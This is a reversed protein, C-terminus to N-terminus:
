RISIYARGKLEEMWEKFRKQAEEKFLLSRIKERTEELSELRGTRKDMVMFLHYGEPTEVVPSIGGPRLKFLAQNIAPLMEGRKVWGVIGEKEAHADESFDKALKEFNEGERIREQLAEIKRRATEDTLGKQVAEESKRVTISRIQVSEEEAFESPHAQYYEEIERPSIVVQAHIEMDHLKRITTQRRYNERLKTLSYGETQLAKEFEAETPFRAKFQDVMHDIETEDVTIGRTKAEQFVLRDEIMQNLLKLRIENLQAALEEEKRHDKKMEQYLPRLYLDLESQTIAEDNVVAIVRDVLQRPAQQAWAPVLGTLVFGLTLLYRRLM